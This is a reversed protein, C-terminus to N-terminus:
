HPLKTFTFGGYSLSALKGEADKVFGIIEGNGGPLMVVRITDKETYPTAVANMHGLRVVLVVLDNWTM